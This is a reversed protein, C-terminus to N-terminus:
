ALMGGGPAARLAAAQRVLLRLCEEADLVGALVSATFEGLSAGLLLDPEIGDAILTEAAALEVMVIAPHTFAIDDFPEARGRGPAYLAALVSEGLEDAAAADLRDMVRRFVPESEYLAAGMGSYQSGQGSFQFVVPRNM